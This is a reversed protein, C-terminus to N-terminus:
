EGFFNQVSDSLGGDVDGDQDSDVESEYYLAALAGGAAGAAPAATKALGPPAAFVNGDEDRGVWVERKFYLTRKGSDSPVVGVLEWGLAGAKNLFRSGDENAVELVSYEFSRPTGLDRETRSGRIKEFRSRVTERALVEAEHRRDEAERAREVELREREAELREQEERLGDLYQILGDVERLRRGFCRPRIASLVDVLQDIAGEDKRVEPYWVTDKLEGVAAKTDGSALASRSRM